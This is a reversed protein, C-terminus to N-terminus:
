MPLEGQDKGKRPRKAPPASSVPAAIPAILDPGEARANNVTTAVSHYDIEHGYPRLAIAEVLPMPTDKALWLRADEPDLVLPMRDHIAVTGPTADTTVIAFSELPEGDPGRWRAGIGAFTMVEEGRHLWYPQPREGRALVPPRIWEYWGSAPVLLRRKAFAEKFAPKKGLSDNRANIM